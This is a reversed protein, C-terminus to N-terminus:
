FLSPGCQSAATTITFSPIYAFCEVCIIVEGAKASHLNGTLAVFDGTWPLVCLKIGEVSQTFATISVSTVQDNLAMGQNLAVIFMGTLMNVSLVMGTLTLPIPM